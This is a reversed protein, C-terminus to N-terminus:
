EMGDPRILRDNVFYAEIGFIPKIGAKDCEAQLAPHASCRGHDTIAVGPQGDKVAEEVLESIKSLGDLPSYESHTHGHVFDTAFSQRVVTLKGPAAQYVEIYTPVHDFTAWHSPNVGYFPPREERLEAFREATIASIKFDSPKDDPFGGSVPVLIGAAGAASAMAWVTAPIQVHNAALFWRIGDEDDELLAHIPYTHGEMVVVPNPRSPHFPYKEVIRM